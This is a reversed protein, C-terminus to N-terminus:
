GDFVVLRTGRSTEVKGMLQGSGPDVIRFCRDSCGPVYVLGGAVQVDGVQEAGFLQFRLTGDAGYGRLGIGARVEPGSGDAGGFAVIGTGARALFSAGDDVLSSTWDRTDILTM